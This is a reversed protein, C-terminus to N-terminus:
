AQEGGGTIRAGLARLTGPLDAHGRQLQPLGGIVTTGDAALAAVLLASGTRIDTAHVAAPTLAQPGRLTCATASTETIVAGMARLQPVLNAHRGPNIADCFRHCGPLGIALALLGPEWDADLGGPELSAHAALPRGSPQWGPPVDLTGGDGTTAAAPIGLLRLAAALPAIDGPLIGRIRGSGGTAAIACALTGAEIKDGPVTWRVPGAHEGPQMSVLGATVEVACGAQALARYLAHLEASLNPNSIVVPRDAAVARLLAAVTAGRSRFPLSIRVTGSGRGGCARVAYGAPSTETRDGFAEYVTFHLDMGREGVSCGGPWPLSASGFAAILAPVLYYSARIRSAGALEPQTLGPSEAGVQVQGAGIVRVHWGARALLGTMVRVDACAPIRELDVPGAPLTAAAALLPLAANKSGDIWAEGSLPLGGRVQVTDPIRTRALASM